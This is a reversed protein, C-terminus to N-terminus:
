ESPSRVRDGEDRNNDRDGADRPDVALVGSEIAALVFARRLQELRQGGADIIAVAHQQRIEVPLDLVAQVVEGLSHAIVHRPRPHVVHNEVRRDQDTVVQCDVAAHEQSFTRRGRKQGGVTRQERRNGVGRNRWRGDRIKGAIERGARAVREAHQAGRTLDRQVLCVELFAQLDQGPVVEPCERRAIVRRDGPEGTVLWQQHARVSAGKARVHREGTHGHRHAHIGPECEVGNPSHAESVDDRGAFM